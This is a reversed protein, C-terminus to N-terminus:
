GVVELLAGVGKDSAIRILEARQRRLVEGRELGGGGLLDLLLGLADGLFGAFEIRQGNIEVGVELAVGLCQSFQIGDGLLFDGGEQLAGQIGLLTAHAGGQSEGLLM